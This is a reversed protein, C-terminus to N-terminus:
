GAGVWTCTPSFSFFPMVVTVTVCLPMPVPLAQPLAAPRSPVLWALASAPTSAAMANM